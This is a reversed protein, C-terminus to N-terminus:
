LRAAAALKFAMALFNFLITGKEEEKRASPTRRQPYLDLGNACCAAASGLPLDALLRRRLDFAIM